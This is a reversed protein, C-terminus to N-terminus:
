EVVRDLRALNCAQARGAEQLDEFTGVFCMETPAAYIEALSKPRKPLGFVEQAGGVSACGMKNEEKKFDRFAEQPHAKQPQQFRRPAHLAPDILTDRFQPEPAREDGPNLETATSDMPTPDASAGTSEMFSTVARELNWENADLWSFAFESDCAAISTFTAM